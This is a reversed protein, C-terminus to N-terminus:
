ERVEDLSRAERKEGLRGDKRRSGTEERDLRHGIYHTMEDVVKDNNESKENWGVRRMCGASGVGGGGVDGAGINLGSLAVPCLWIM